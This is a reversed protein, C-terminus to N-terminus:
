IAGPYFFHCRYTSCTSYKKQMVNKIGYKEQRKCSCCNCFCNASFSFSNFEFCFEFCVVVVDDEVAVVDVSLVIFDRVTLVEFFLVSSM